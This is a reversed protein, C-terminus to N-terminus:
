RCAWPAASSTPTALVGPGRGAARPDLRRGGTPHASFWAAELALSPRGPAAGRVRRSPAPRGPVFRHGTRVAQPRSRPDVTLECPPGPRASLRSRRPRSAVLGARTGGARVRAVPRAMEAGYGVPLRVPQAGASGGRLWTSWPSTRTATSRSCCRPTAPSACPVSPAPWPSPWPAPSAARAGPRWPRRASGRRPQPRRRRTGGGRSGTRGRATRCRRGRVALRPLRPAPAHARARPRLAAPRRRPEAVAPRGAHRGPAPVPFRPDSAPRVRPRILVADARRSASAGGSRDHEAADRLHWRRHGRGDGQADGRRGARRSRMGESAWSTRPWDAWPASRRSWPWGPWTPARRRRSAPSGARRDRPLLAPPGGRHRGPGRRAAGARRVARPLGAGSPGRLALQDLM